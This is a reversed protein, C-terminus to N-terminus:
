VYVYWIRIFEKKQACINSRTSFIEESLTRLLVVGFLFKGNLLRLIEDIFHNEDCEQFNFTFLHVLLQAIKDRQLKPSDLPINHFAVNLINATIKLHDVSLNEKM